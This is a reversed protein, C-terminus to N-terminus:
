RSYRGRLETQELISGSMANLVDSKTVGRQLNLTRNLAYLRFSYSHDRGEPPCSGEYGIIGSSGSGETGKTQGEAIFSTEPDINFLVWHDWAYGVVDVADEPDDMILVLSKAGSPVSSISLPPSVEEGDCTHKVPIRGQHAFAPSSLSLTDSTGGSTVGSTVGEKNKTVRYIAGVKDDSVYLAGSSDFIVDVPKGSSQGGKLWGTIFDKESIITNGSVDLRVVKYGTPISRNWSGHFTVLLDGDWQAFQAGEIFRLGLPASHAQIDWTSPTATTCFNQNNHEPDTKNKGYCYPWGYHNGKRLINIEDPPLDDGLNDRGNESAWIEGTTKHFVFGVANRLGEVFVSQGTGDSNYEVIAARRKDSEACVNCSSGISVYMKGSSSFGITRSVHSYDGGVPLNELIVERTGVNGNNLYLYRSVRNEEAIYLYGNYFAIGHPRNSLGTIVRKTVDAIGDKNADPFALVEGGTTNDSYLGINTPKTVFLIGDPSFAMFRLPGLNTKTFYSITYGVPVTLALGTNDIAQPPSPTPATTSETKIPTPESVERQPVQPTPTTAQPAVEKEFRIPLLRNKYLLVEDENGLIRAASNLEENLRDYHDPGIKGRREVWYDIERKTDEFQGYQVRESIPLQGKKVEESEQQLTSDPETKKNMFYMGSGVVIGVVAVAILIVIPSFGKNECIM